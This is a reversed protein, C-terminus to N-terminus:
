ASRRQTLRHVLMLLPSSRLLGEKKIEREREKRGKRERESIFLISADKLASKMCSEMINKNNERLTAPRLDFVSLPCSNHSPNGQKGQTTLM